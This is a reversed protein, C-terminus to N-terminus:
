NMEGSRTSTNYVGQPDAPMDDAFLFITGTGEERGLAAIHVQKPGDATPADAM